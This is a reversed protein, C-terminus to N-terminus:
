VGAHTTFGIHFCTAGTALWASPAPARVPDEQPTARLCRGAPLQSYRVRQGTEREPTPELYKAPGVERHALCGHLCALSAYSDM